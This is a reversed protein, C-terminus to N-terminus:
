KVIETKVWYYGKSNKKFTHKYETFHEKNEKLYEKFDDEYSLDVKYGNNYDKLKEEFYDYYAVYEYIVLDKETAKYSDMYSVTVDGTEGGGISLFYEDQYVYGLIANYIDDISKTESINSIKKNYYEEMKDKIFSLPFYYRDVYDQEYYFEEGNKLPVKKNMDFSCNNNDWCVAENSLVKSILYKEKINDISSKEKDYLKYEMISPVYSLYKTLEEESLTVEKNGTILIVGVLIVLVLGSVILVIKKSKKM